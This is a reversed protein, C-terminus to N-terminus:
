GILASCVAEAKEYWHYTEAGHPCWAPGILTLVSALVKRRPRRNLLIHSHTIPLQWATLALSRSFVVGLPASDLISFSLLGSLSRSGAPGSALGVEPSKWEQYWYM